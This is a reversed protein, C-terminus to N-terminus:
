IYNDSDHQQQYPSADWFLDDKMDFSYDLNVQDMFMSWNLQSDDCMAEAEDGRSRSMSETGSGPAEGIGSPWPNAIMSNSWTDTTLMENLDLTDLPVCDLDGSKLHVGERQRQVRRMLKAIPKWLMGKENDAIVSSYQHFSRVAIAYAAEFEKTPPRSCLEALVIALAYWQVWSKWAWQSFESSKIDLEHRLVKVSQGLVDFDDSPPVVQSSQKYPPRRLVLHAAAIMANAAQAAFRELLQANEKVNNIYDEKMGREFILVLQSKTTWSDEMNVPISLMKKHFIMARNMLALFSMENFRLSSAQPVLGPSIDEDNLTLPPPGLDNWNVIAATGRDLSAFTDLGAICYWLRRRIQLEFPDFTRDDEQGLRLSTGVRVAVAM